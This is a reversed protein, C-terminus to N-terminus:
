SQEGRPKLELKIILNSAALEAGLQGPKFKRKFNCDLINRYAEVIDIM